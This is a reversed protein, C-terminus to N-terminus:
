IYLLSYSELFIWLMIELNRYFLTCIELLNISEIIHVRGNPSYLSSSFCQEALFNPTLKQLNAVFRTSIQPFLTKLAHLSLPRSEQKTKTGMYLHLSPKQM